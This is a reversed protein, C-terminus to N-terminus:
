VMTVRLRHRRIAAVTRRAASRDTILEDLDALDLYKAGGAAGLKSADALVVRRRAGAAMREAVRAAEIDRAFCGRAPDIGDTGLFATDATLRELMLETGPGVLDPSGRRVRGGVLLLEITEHAWLESAVVLSSTAVRCPLGRRALARAMELTTTGTDLFVTQGPEVDAAAAAGIRVKAAHHREHREDFAFEFTIRRAPVAGGYSRVATGAAALAQLDRRITMPAVGFRKAAAATSVGRGRALMEALERRRREAQVPSRPM